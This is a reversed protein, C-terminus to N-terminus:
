NPSAQTLGVGVHQVHDKDTQRYTHTHRVTFVCVEVFLRVQFVAHM